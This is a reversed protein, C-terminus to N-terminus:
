KYYEKFLSQKKIDFIGAMKDLHIERPRVKTNCWRWFTSYNIGLKDCLWAFKIGRSRMIDIVKKMM